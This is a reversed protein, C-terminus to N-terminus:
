PPTIPKVTITHQMINTRPAGYGQICLQFVKVISGGYEFSAVSLFIMGFVQRPSYAGDFDSGPVSLCACIWQLSRQAYVGDCQRMIDNFAMYGDILAEVM